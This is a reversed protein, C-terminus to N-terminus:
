EGASERENGGDMNVAMREGTPHKPLHVTLLGGELRATIGEADITAPLNLSQIFSGSWCSRARQDGAGSPNGKCRLTLVDGGVEVRIDKEECGPVEIHIIFHREDEEMDVAPRWSPSGVGQQDLIGTMFEDMSRRMGTFASFPGVRIPPRQQNRFPLSTM